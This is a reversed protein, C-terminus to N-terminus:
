IRWNHIAALQPKPVNKDTHLGYYALHIKDDPLDDSDPGDYGDQWQYAVFIKVGQRASRQFDLVYKEEVQENTLRVKKTTYFPPRWSFTKIEEWWTHWGTETNAIDRGNAHVILEQLAAEPSGGTRPWARRQGQQSKYPYEHYGVTLGMPGIDPPMKPLVKEYFDLSDRNLNALGGTIIRGRFGRSRADKYAQTISNVYIDETVRGGELENFIEIAPELLQDQVPLLVNLLSELQGVDHLLILPRLTKNVFSNVVHSHDGEVRLGDFGEAIAQDIAHMGFNTYILM